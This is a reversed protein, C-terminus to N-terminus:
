WENLSRHGPRSLGLGGRLLPPLVKGGIVTEKVIADVNHPSARGYWVSVGQPFYIICNGAFKHGGIHSNQVILARKLEPLSKLHHLIDADKEEDSGKFEELSAGSDAPDDLQRHVEWGERELAITLGHEVKPGAIGCRNDRRKHSCIMIVCSYPLIWSKVTMGDWVRGIRGVAPDLAAKYLDKAGEATREVEAVVKYDPLVLVTEKADDCVTHHSGNLVTIRSTELPDFVGPLKKATSPTGPTIPPVTLKPSSSIASELYAALSGSESEIHSPWDSNGTSIVAQRRYPKVSGLMQSEMDIDLRDPYEEHGQDCPDSCYRCGGTSVPIAAEEFKDPSLEAESPGLVIEKLKRFASM